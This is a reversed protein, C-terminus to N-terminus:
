IIGFRHRKSAKRERLVAALFRRKRIAHARKAKVSLGTAYRGMRIVHGQKDRRMLFIGISCLGRSKPITPIPFAGKYERGDWIAVPQAYFYAFRKGNDHENLKRFKEDSLYPLKSKKAEARADGIEDVVALRKTDNINSFRGNGSHVFGECVIYYMHISVPLRM